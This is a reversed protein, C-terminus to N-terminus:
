PEKFRIVWIDDGGVCSVPLGLFALGSCSYGPSAPSGAAVIDGKGNVAPMLHPAGRGVGGTVWAFQGSSSMRALIPANPFTAPVYTSGLKAGPEGVIGGLWITGNPEVAPYFLERVPTAPANAWEWRGAASLRAVFGDYHKVGGSPLRITGLTISGYVIGSVITAGGAAPAMTWVRDYANGGFRVAWTFKGAADAAAVFGDATAGVGPADVLSHTGFKLTGRFFGGVRCGGSGDSTAGAVQAMTVEGSAAAWRWAGSADLAVVYVGRGKNVSAIVSGSGVTGSLTGAVCLRGTSDSGIGLGKSSGTQSLTATWVVAGSPSVRAVVTQDQGAIGKVQTNGLTAEDNFWGVVYLNDSGDLALDLLRDHGTGGLQMAWLVKGGADIKLLFGDRDGKSALSKGGCRLSGGDFYGAVYANGSSDLVVATAFEDKDTGCTWSWLPTPSGPPLDKYQWDAAGSDGPVDPVPGDGAALDGGLDRAADVVLGRDPAGEGGDVAGSKNSCAPLSGALLLAFGIGRFVSVM